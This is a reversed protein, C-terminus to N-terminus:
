RRKKKPVFCAGLTALAVVGVASVSMVSGCGDEKPEQSSNESKSPVPLKTATTGTPKQENENQPPQDQEEDTNGNNGGNNGSNGNENDNGDDVVPVADITMSFQNESMFYKDKLTSYYRVQVDKGDESFYLMAVAGVGNYSVDAAQPDILMQTVTNGKVGKEQTMIINDCPDHGSIVLVINECQSILKNWMHDGNNYGGTTAPPCVDNQDLTTGDRYFYAHTTIIVNYDPNADIANKAWRLVEDSPGYDLTFVMYKVKGVEFMRYTNRMDTYYSDITDAYDSVKVYNNFTAVSDHNGRVISYPIKGDLKKMANMAVQWEEAYSHETIDGLGMVFKTNNEESNDLIWDYIEGFTDKHNQSVIQTDGIVAFSYAFENLPEMDREEIWVVKKKLDYGNGSGDTIRGSSLTSVDYSAILGDKAPATMDAAIEAATRIDSYVAVSAIEGKFYQQNGSRHDGGLVMPHKVLIDVADPDTKTEKLEGNVYCQLTNTSANYTIALHLWAGTNIHVSSFKADVAGNNVFFRPVGNDSVEFNVNIQANGSNGWNGFIVGARGTVSTPINVWAEFTMPTQTILKQTAYRDTATFTMGEKESAFTPVSLLMVAVLLVAIIRIAKM